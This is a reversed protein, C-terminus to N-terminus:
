LWYSKINLFYSTFDDSADNAHVITHKTNAGTSFNPIPYPVFRAPINPNHLYMREYKDKVNFCRDNDLVQLGQKITYCFLGDNTSRLAFSYHVGNQLVAQSVTSCDVFVETSRGDATPRWIEVVVRNYSPVGCHDFGGFIIGVGDYAGWTINNPDYAVTNRLMVDQHGTRNSWNYSIYDFTVHHTSRAWYYPAGSPLNYGQNFYDNRSHPTGANCGYSGFAKSYDCRRGLIRGGAVAPAQNATVSTYLYGKVGDNSYGQNLKSQIDASSTAFYHVLDGTSANWKNLRYVPVTGPVQYTYLNGEVGEETWGLSLVTNREGLDTTYFHDTEPQDKYFRMLPSTHTSRVAEVYGVIGTKGPLDDYGYNYIASEIDQKNISYFYDNSEASYVYYLPRLPAKEVLPVADATFSASLLCVGVGALRKAKAFM